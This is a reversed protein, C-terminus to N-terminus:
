LAAALNETAIRRLKLYRGRDVPAAWLAARLREGTSGLERAFRSPWHHHWAELWALLVAREVADLVNPDLTSLEARVRVFDIARAPPRPPGDPVGAARLANWDPTM